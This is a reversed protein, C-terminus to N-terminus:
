PSNHQNYGDRIAKGLLKEGSRHGGTASGSTGAKGGHAVHTADYLQRTIKRRPDPPLPKGKTATFANLLQRVWRVTRKIM